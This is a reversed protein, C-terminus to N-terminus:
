SIIWDWGCVRRLHGLGEMGLYSRDNTHMGCTHSSKYFIHTINIDGFLNILFSYEFIKRVISIIHLM